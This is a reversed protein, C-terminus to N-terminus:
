FSIPKYKAQFSNTFEYFRKKHTLFITIIPKHLSMLADTGAFSSVIHLTLMETRGTGQRTFLKLVVRPM